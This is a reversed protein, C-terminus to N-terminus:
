GQVLKDIQEQTLAGASGHIVASAMDALRQLAEVGAKAKVQVLQPGGNAVADDLTEIVEGVLQDLRAITREFPERYQAPVHDYAEIALERDAVSSDRFHDKYTKPQWARCDELIEPMDPVMGLSMIIENFHNLYDTALLTTESINTGRVRQQWAKFSTSPPTTKASM